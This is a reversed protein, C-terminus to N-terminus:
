KWQPIVSWEIKDFFSKAKSIMPDDHYAWDYNDTPKLEDSINDIRSLWAVHKSKDLCDDDVLKITLEKRTVRDFGKFVMQKNPKFFLYGSSHDLIVKNRRWDSYIHAILFNYGEVKKFFIRYSVLASFPLIKRLEEGCYLNWYGVYEDIAYNIKELPNCIFQQLSVGAQIASKRANLFNVVEPVVRTFEDSKMFLFIAEYKKEGLNNKRKFWKDLDDKSVYWGTKPVIISIDASIRTSGKGTRQGYMSVFERAVPQSPLEVTDLESSLSITEKQRKRM